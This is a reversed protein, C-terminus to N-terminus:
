EEIIFHNAYITRNNINAGQKDDALIFFLWKSETQLLNSILKDKSSTNVSVVFVLFCSRSSLLFILSTAFALFCGLGSFISGPSLWAGELTFGLRIRLGSPNSLGGSIGRLFPL